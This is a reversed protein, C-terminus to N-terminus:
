MLKVNLFSETAIIVFLFIVSVSLLIFDIYLFTGAGIISLAIDYWPIRNVIKKPNFPYLLFILALVFSLHITRQKLALLLGFGATYYQFLSFTIAILSLIIAWTGILKRYRAETDYKRRIEEVDIQEQTTDSQGM